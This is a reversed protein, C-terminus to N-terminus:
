QLYQVAGKITYPGQEEVFGPVFYGPDRPGAPVDLASKEALCNKTIKSAARSLINHFQNMAQKKKAPDSVLSTILQAGRGEFKDIVMEVDRSRAAHKVCRNVFSAAPEIDHATAFPLQYTSYIGAGAGTIDADICLVKQVILRLEEFASRNMSTSLDKILSQAEADRLFCKPLTQDDLAITTFGEIKPFHKNTYAAYLFVCGLIIFVVLIQNFGAFEHAFQQLKALM